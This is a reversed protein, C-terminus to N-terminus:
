VHVYLRPPLAHLDHQEFPSVRCRPQEPECHGCPQRSFARSLQGYLLLRRAKKVRRALKLAAEVANTGTPGCFQVKYDLGRPELILRSFGELFVRKAGTYMDLSHVLGDSQLYSIVRELIYDNNHGYNLAGAGAFFDIFEAGSESYVISGKARVFVDTFVRCYSRVNSELEEFINM